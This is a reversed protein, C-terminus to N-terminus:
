SCMSHRYTHTLKRNSNKQCKLNGKFSMEFVPLMFVGRGDRCLWELGVFVRVGGATATTSDHVLPVGRITLSSYLGFYVWHSLMGVITAPVYYIANYRLHESKLPLRHSAWALHCGKPGIHLYGLPNPLAAKTTTTTCQPWQPKTSIDLYGSMFVRRAITSSPHRHRLRHMRLRPPRPTAWIKGSSPAHSSRFTYESKALVLLVYFINTVCDLWDYFSEM